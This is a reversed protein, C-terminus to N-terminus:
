RALAAAASSRAHGIALRVEDWAPHRLACLAILWCLVGGAALGFVPLLGMGPHYAGLQLAAFLPLGAAAACLASKGYVSAM